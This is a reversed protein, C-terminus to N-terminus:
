KGVVKRTTADFNIEKTRFTGVNPDSVKMFTIPIVYRYAASLYIPEWLLGTTVDFVLAKFVTNDERPKEGYWAYTTPWNPILQALSLARWDVIELRYKFPEVATVYCSEWRDTNRDLVVPIKGSQLNVDSRAVGYQGILHESADIIKCYYGSM